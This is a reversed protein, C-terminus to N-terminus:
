GQVVPGVEVRQGVRRAARDGPLNCVALEGRLVKALTQWHDATLPQEPWGLRRWIRRAAEAVICPHVTPVIPLWWRDGRVEAQEAVAAIQPELAELAAAANAALQLLARDVDGPCHQRLAPLVEHRLRNRTWHPQDNTADHRWAQGLEQLYGELLARPVDLLPRILVFDEDFVRTPPIGRLGALGTGRTIRHLITEVQDNQTHATALYRANLRRVVAQLWGYRQQRADQESPNQHPDAAPAQESFFPRGLQEALQQVFREDAASDDRWRHNYHALVLSPKAPTAEDLLRCLAVSDAGGSVAVVIRCGDRTSAPWSRELAALLAARPSAPDGQPGLTM